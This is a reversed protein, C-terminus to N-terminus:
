SNSEAKLTTQPTDIRHQEFIGDKIAQEVIPNLITERSTPDFYTLKQIGQYKKLVEKPIEYVRHTKSDGISITYSPDKPRDAKAVHDIRFRRKM